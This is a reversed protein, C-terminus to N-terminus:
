YKQFIAGPAKRFNNVDKRPGAYIDAGKGQGIRGIEANQANNDAVPFFGLGKELVAAKGKAASHNHGNLNRIRWAAQIGNQLKNRGVADVKFVHIGKHLAFQVLGHHNEAEVLNLLCDLKQGFVAKM